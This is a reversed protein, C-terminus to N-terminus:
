TPIIGSLGPLYRTLPRKRSWTNMPQQLLLFTQSRFALPQPYQQLLIQVDAPILAPESHWSRHFRSLQCVVKLGPGALDAAKPDCLDSIEMAASRCGMTLILIDRKILEKAIIISHVDKGNVRLSTCSVLGAIGKISGDKIANLLPDLTGGLAEFFSEPSFGVVAEQVLLSTLPKVQAKRKPFNEIGMELIKKARIKVNEPIYHLREEIGKFAILEGVPLLRFQYKQAYIPDIPMSCNMDAVFVDMTGTTIVAEQM